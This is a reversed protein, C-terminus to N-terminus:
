CEHPGAYEIATDCYLAAIALLHNDFGFGAVAAGPTSFARHLADGDVGGPKGSFLFVVLHIYSGIGQATHDIEGDGYRAVRRHAEAGGIATVDDHTVHIAFQIDVIDVAGDGQGVYAAAGHSM